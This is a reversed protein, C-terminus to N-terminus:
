RLAFLSCLIIYKVSPVLVLASRSRLTNPTHVLGLFLEFVSWAHWEYCLWVGKLVNFPTQVCCGVIQCGSLIHLPAETSLGLSM